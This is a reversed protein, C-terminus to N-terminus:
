SLAATVVDTDTMIEGFGITLGVTLIEEFFRTIVTETTPPKTLTVM